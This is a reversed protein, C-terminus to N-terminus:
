RALIKVSCHMDDLSLGKMRDGMKFGSNTLDELVIIKEDAHYCTPWISAKSDAVLDKTETILQQVSPFFDNYVTAEREFIDYKVAFARQSEDPSPFKVFLRLEHTKTQNAESPLQVPADKGLVQYRVVLRATASLYGDGKVLLPTTQVELVKVEHQNSRKSLLQAFWNEDLMEM